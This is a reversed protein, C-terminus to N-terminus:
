NIFQVIFINWLKNCVYSPPFVFTNISIRSTQLKWRRYLYSISMNANNELCNIGGRDEIIIRWRGRMGYDRNAVPVMHNAHVVGIINLGHYLRCRAHNQDARPCSRKLLWNNVLSTASPAARWETELSVFLVCFARLITRKLILYDEVAKFAPILSGQLSDRIAPNHTTTKTHIGTHRFVIIM